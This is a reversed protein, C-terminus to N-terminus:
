GADLTRPVVSNYPINTDIWTESWVNYSAAGWAGATEEQVLPETIEIILAAVDVFPSEAGAEDLGAFQKWSDEMLQHLHKLMLYEQNGIMNQVASVTSVLAPNGLALLAYAPNECDVRVRKNTDARLSLNPIYTDPTADKFGDSTDSFTMIHSQDLVTEAFIQSDQALVTLNPVGPEAFPATDDDGVSAGTDIQSSGATGSHLSDKPVARDWLADADDDDAIWENNVAVVGRMNVITAVNTAVDGAAVIKVAGRMGLFMGGESVIPAAAIVRDEAAVLLRHAYEHKRVRM